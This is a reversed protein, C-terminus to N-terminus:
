RKEEATTTPPPAPVRSVSVHLVGTGLPALRIFAAAYLDVVRGDRCLCTDILRVAVSQGGATVIVTRGRWNGVRLSPGAAAYMGGAPYGRTCRSRGPLCYWTAKGVITATRRVPVVASPSPTAVAEATPSATAVSVPQPARTRQGDVDPSPVADLGDMTMRGLSHPLDAPHAASRPAPSCGAILLIALLVRTM